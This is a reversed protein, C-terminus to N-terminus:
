DKSLKSKKSNELTNWIEEEDSDEEDEEDNDERKRKSKKVPEVPANPDIEDETDLILIDSIEIGLYIKSIQSRSELDFVRLYRDLGGTVVIDDQSTLAYTAGTNTGESFRGLLKAVPKIVTGASASNTKHANEDIKTLSYKAILSGTNAVICAENDDVIELSILGQDCIKFDNLPRKGHSTKHIRIQGYNTTTVLKYSGDNESDVFKIQNIWIPVRLDLHDPKVNKAVYISKFSLKSDKSLKNFSKLTTKDDFLEVVQLDNEKGGFAFVGPQSPHQTFASIPKKTPLTFNIPQHSFKADIQIISVDGSEFAILISNFKNLTILAIPKDNKILDYTKLLLFTDLKGDQVKEVSLDDLNYQHIQLTGNVRVTILYQDNYITFKSIYNKPSQDKEFDEILKVAISDKKSTDTNRSAHVFKFSGSDRAAVLFKM